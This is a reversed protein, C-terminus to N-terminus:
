ALDENRSLVRAEHETVNGTTSSKQQKAGGGRQKMKTIKTKLRDEKSGLWQNPRSYTRRQLEKEEIKIKNGPPTAGRNENLFFSM